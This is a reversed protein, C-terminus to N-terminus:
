SSAFSAMVTMPREGCITMGGSTVAAHFAVAGREDLYTGVDLTSQVGLRGLLERAVLASTLCTQFPVRRACVCTAWRVLAIAASEPLATRAAYAAPAKREVLRKWPLVVLAIRAVISAAVARRLLMRELATLESWRRLLRKM